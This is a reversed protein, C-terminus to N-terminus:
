KWRGIIIDSRKIEDYLLVTNITRKSIEM